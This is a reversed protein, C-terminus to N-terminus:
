RPAREAQAILQEFRPDSRLPDWEWRHRLDQATVSYHVSDSTGPTKLQREILALAQDREGVRAYILALYSNMLAGDVADRTEPELEVARRGEIIAAEKRGMFAYLLGLNAHRTANEPAEQVAAEFNLRAREFAAEAAAHDGRALATCGAFYDKPTESGNLYSFETLPSAALAAEAGAFDRKIMHLEWRAATIAGDPDVDQPVSALFQELAHTSGKWLFEIYGAQM